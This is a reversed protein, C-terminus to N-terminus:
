LVLCICKLLRELERQPLQLEVGMTASDRWVCIGCLTGASPHDLAIVKGSPMQTDFRLRIGDMSVDLIRCTYLRGGSTATIPPQDEVLYRKSNRRDEGGALLHDPQGTTMGKDRRSQAKAPAAM